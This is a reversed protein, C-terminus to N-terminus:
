GLDVVPPHLEGGIVAERRGQRDAGARCAGEPHVGGRRALGGGPVAAGPERRRRARRPQAHERLVRLWQGDVRAAKVLEYVTPDVHTGCYKELGLVAQYAEPVVEHIRMRQSM